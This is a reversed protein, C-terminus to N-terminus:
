QPIDIPADQNADFLFYRDILAANGAVHGANTNVPDTKKRTKAYVSNVGGTRLIGQGALKGNSNKYAVGANYYVYRYYNMELPSLVINYTETDLQLAEQRIALMGATGFLAQSMTLRAVTSPMGERNVWTGISDSSTAIGQDELSARDAWYSDMGVDLTTVLSDSKYDAVFSHTGEQALTSFLLSESVGTQDSARQLDGVLQPNNLEGVVKPLTVGLTDGLQAQLQLFDQAQGHKAQYTLQAAQYSIMEPSDPAVSQPRTPLGADKGTPDVFKLPNDDAYSYSTKDTHLIPDISVFQGTRPSYYRAGFYSLGGDNEKGAFGYKSDGGVTGEKSMLKGYPLFTNKSSLVGFENTTYRVSNIVDGFHYRLNGDDISAIPTGKALVYVTRHTGSRLAPPNKVPLVAIAEQGLLEPLPSSNSTTSTNVDNISDNKEPLDIIAATTNIETQNLPSTDNFPFQADATQNSSTENDKRATIETESIELNDFEKEIIITEEPEGQSSSADNSLSQNTDVQDLTTQNIETENLATVMTALGIFIMVLFILM